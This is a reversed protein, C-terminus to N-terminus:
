TSDAQFRFVAGLDFLCLMTDDSTHKVSKPM